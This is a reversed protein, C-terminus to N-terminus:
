FATSPAHVQGHHLLLHALANQTSLSPTHFFRWTLREHTSLRLPFLSIVFTQVLPHM